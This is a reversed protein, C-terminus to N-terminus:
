STKFVQLSPLKTSFFPVLFGCRTRTVIETVKLQTWHLLKQLVASVTCSKTRKLRMSAKLKNKLESNFDVTRQWKVAQIEHLDFQSVKKVIPLSETLLRPQSIGNINDNKVFQLCMVGRLQTLLKPKQCETM